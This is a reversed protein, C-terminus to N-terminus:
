VEVAVGVRETAIEAVATELDVVVAALARDSLDGHPALIPEERATLQSPLRRCRQVRGGDAAPLESQIRERVQRVHQIPQARRL